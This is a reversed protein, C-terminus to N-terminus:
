SLERYILSSNATVSSGSIKTIAFTIYSYEGNAKLCLGEDNLEYYPKLDINYSGASFYRVTHQYGSGMNFTGNNNYEITTYSSSVWTGGTPSSDHIEELKVAGGEVFLALTEPYISVRNTGSGLINTANNRISFLLTRSANVIISGSSEVDAGRWFTYDDKATSDSYVAACVSRIDSSGVTAAHNTNEWRIPLHPTLMYPGINNNPNRFTHCVIRAGSSDLIGFRCEGVGLWAMDIWYLNEKTLDLTFLSNGTGDLQDNNFSLQSVKTDVGNKRTVVGFSSGSLEFFLGNDQDFYGWRRINGVRGSDSLGLTQIILTGTGPLYYHYRNSTRSVSSGSSSNVSLLYTANLTDHTASGGSSSINTFLEDFSRQTHEYAAVMRPQGIRLNGFADLTPEGEAFTVAAAGNQNVKQVYFPNDRDSVNVSPTYLKDGVSSAKAYTISSIQLNEGVIAAIPSEDDLHVYLEGTVTTGTVKVIKGTIGSTAGTIVDGVSFDITGNSYGLEILVGHNVKKGTGDPPVQIYGNFSM